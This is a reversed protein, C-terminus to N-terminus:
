LKNWSSPNILRPDQLTNFKPLSLLKGEAAEVIENLQRVNDLGVVVRDIVSLNTVYRLCAQLPTLGERFLWSDWMNWVDAWRNFKALRLHPPMLLLGQLFISRAHVEVGTNHLFHAWGSDIFRRDLINLPAQVLDFAYADFLADLEEPGYVSVGIKTTLGQTKISQLASYLAPGIRDLLQGPTHLLVGYLHTVKLRSMSQLINDNVWKGINQCDDPVAPLKTIIKWGSIGLQGLVEESEGYAIATDLTDLGCKQARELIANVEQSCVRGSTNAVGYKMGFQVTGVALKM